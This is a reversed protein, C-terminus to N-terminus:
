LVSTHEKDTVIIDNKKHLTIEQLLEFHKVIDLVSDM